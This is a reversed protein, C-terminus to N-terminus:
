FFTSWTISIEPYKFAAYSPKLTSVLVCVYVYVYMYVCEMNLSKNDFM